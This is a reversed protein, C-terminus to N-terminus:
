VCVEETHALWLIAEPWPWSTERSFRLSARACNDLMKRLEQHCSAIRPSSYGRGDETYIHSMPWGVVERFGLLWRGTRLSPQTM